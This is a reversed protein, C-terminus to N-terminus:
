PYTGKLKCIASTIPEDLHKYVKVLPGDNWLIPHLQVLLELLEDRQQKITALSTQLNIVEDERSEAHAITKM